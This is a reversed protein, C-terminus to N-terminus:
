CARLSTIDCGRHIGIMSGLEDLPDIHFKVSSKMLFYNLIMQLSIFYHTLRVISILDESNRPVIDGETSRGM